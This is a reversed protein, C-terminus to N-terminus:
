QVRPCTLLVHIINVSRLGLRLRDQVAPELIDLWPPSRCYNAARQGDLPPGGRVVAKRFGNELGSRDSSAALPCLFAAGRRSRGFCIGSSPPDNLHDVPKAFRVQPGSHSTRRSAAPPRAGPPTAAFNSFACAGGELRETKLLPPLGHPSFDTRSASRFRLLPQMAPRRLTRVVAWREFNPLQSPPAPSGVPASSKPLRGSPPTIRVRSLTPRLTADSHSYSFRRAM